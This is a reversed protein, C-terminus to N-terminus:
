ITCLTEIFLNKNAWKLFDEYNVYPFTLGGKQEFAQRAKASDDVLLVKSCDKEKLREMAIDFLKGNEEHKLIGHNSSNIIVPFINALQHQKVIIEDFVDMNNTVLAVTVGKERLRLALNILQKEIKMVKVSEVFLKNLKNFDIDTNESIFRNVQSSTLQGRMWEDVIKSGRSFIREQIFSYAKPYVDVLNAYFYDKSLVGDFDFIVTKIM